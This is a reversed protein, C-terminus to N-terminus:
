GSSKCPVLNRKYYLLQVTDSRNSVLALGKRRTARGADLPNFEEFSVGVYPGRISNRVEKLVADRDAPSGFSAAGEPWLLLDADTMMKSHEIYDDVVPEFGERGPPPLVCGVTLATVHAPPGVATPTDGIIYSPVVLASLLGGLMLLDLSTPSPTGRERAYKQFPRDKMRGLLPPEDHDIGERIFWMIVAQSCLSAWAAIVWDIILPGTFPIMWRYGELGITPSWTILSGLPTIHSAVAWIAAWVLPFFTIESWPSNIRHCVKADLAIATLAIASSLASLSILFLLSVGQITFTRQATLLHAVAVTFSLALWLFRFRITVGEIHLSDRAYLQLTAVLLILPFPSPSPRLAAAAFMSAVGTYLFVPHKTMAIRLSSM